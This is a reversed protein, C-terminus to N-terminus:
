LASGAEVIVADEVDGPGLAGLGLLLPLLRRYNTGLAQNTALVGMAIALPTGLAAAVGAGRTIVRFAPGVRPVYPLLRGIPGAAFRLVGRGAAGAVFSGGGGAALAAPARLSRGLRRREAETLDELTAPGLSIGLAETLERIQEWPDDSRLAGEVKLRRAVHRVIEELSVERTLYGLPTTYNWWLAEAIREGLEQPSADPSADLEAAELIACLAAAPHTALVREIDHRSLTM